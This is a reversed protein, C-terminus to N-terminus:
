KAITFEKYMGKTSHAKGDKADPFFCIMGYHGPKLDVPVFGSQGKAIASLGGIPKGPPPGNMLDVDVWKAIDAIGKGPALEVLVLEHAQPADNEVRLMHHGATLAPSVTFTYDNLRVTVDTKPEVGGSKEASVTFPMIMGKTIHPAPNGPSPIFCTAIYDGPELTLTAEVSGGPLSPNPGGVLHAFAPFPGPNKTAAAFDAITKGKDLRILQLHHMEKGDNVLRWLSTGSKITKPMDFSYDKAHVVVVNAVPVPAITPRPSVAAVLASVVVAFAPNLM